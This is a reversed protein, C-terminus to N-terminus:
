RALNIEDKLRELVKLNEIAITQNTRNNQNLMDRYYEIDNEIKQKLEEPDAPSMDHPTGCTNDEYVTYFPQIEAIKHLGRHDQVIQGIYRDFSYECPRTKKKPMYSLFTYQGTINDDRMYATGKQSKAYGTLHHKRSTNGQTTVGGCNLREADKKTNQGRATKVTTIIRCRM